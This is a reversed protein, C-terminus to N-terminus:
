YFNRKLYRWIKHSNRCYYYFRCIFVNDAIIAKCLLRYKWRAVEGKALKEKLYNRCHEMQEPELGSCDKYYNLSITFFEDFTKKTCLEVCDKANGRAFSELKERAIANFYSNKLNRSATISNVNVRNYLYLSKSIIEVSETNFVCIPILNLDEFLIGEEFRYTFFDVRFCKNWAYSKWEDTLSLKKIEDINKIYPIWEKNVDKFEECYGYIVIEPYNSNAIKNYLEELLHKEVYDDSDVFVIYDGEVVDLGANRASSLGGNKKHIVQIRKDKAAYVDCMGGSEDKSGDDVLILQFNKYTQELISTLCRDLYQEVNYVPVIVSFCINKILGDKSYIM